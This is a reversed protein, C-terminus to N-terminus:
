TNANIWRGNCANTEEDSCANSITSSCTPKGSMITTYKEFNSLIAGTCFGCSRLGSHCFLYFNSLFNIRSVQQETKGSDLAVRKRRSPSEALLEPKEREEPFLCSLNTLLIL